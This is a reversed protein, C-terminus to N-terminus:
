TVDSASAVRLLVAIQIWHLVLAVVPVETIDFKTDAVQRCHDLIDFVRLPSFAVALLEGVHTVRLAGDHSEITQRLSGGRPQIDRLEHGKCGAENPVDCVEVVLQILADIPQEGSGHIDKSDLRKEARFPCTLDLRNAHENASIACFALSQLPKFKSRNM